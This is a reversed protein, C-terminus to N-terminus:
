KAGVPALAHQVADISAEIVLWGSSTLDARDEDSLNVDAAIRQDIWAVPVPIGDETEFGVQPVPIGPTDALSRVFEQELASYALTIAATWESTFDTAGLPPSTAPVAKVGVEVQTLARITTPATRLGTLNALRLWARWGGNDEKALASGRNDLIIGMEVGSNMGLSPDRIRCVVSLFGDRHLWAPNGSTAAPEQAPTTLDIAARQAASTHEDFIVATSSSALLWPLADALRAWEDPQPHHVWEILQSVPDLSILNLVAPRLSFQTMVRASTGADIWSPVTSTGATPELDEWTIAMVHYGADRLGERKTADDALRNHNASAHFTWGDTFIAIRPVNIDQTTLVFDPKCNPLQEQPVLTWTQHTTPMTFRVRNGTPGPIEKVTAGAATLREIFKVRFLQELLSEDSPVSTDVKSVAWDDFLPVVDIPAEATTGSSLLQFLYREATARSVSDIQWPTAFPLLCKHCALRPEDRCPCTRVKQWASHIIEWVRQPDAFEALYGTGGPVVDHILLADHNVGDSEATPDVVQAIQIHDPAGGLQERLGLLLAATLSPGAFKDGLTMAAPLRILAGQTTLTHSLAIERPNEKDSKRYRCWARHEEPRNSKAATDLKGCHGCVRFLPATREEGAVMRTAGFGGSRGMNLWKIDVRHLYKVGFDYGDLFWQDTVFAPNVDAAVVINFNERKREERSDNISSEDRRVEASVRKIEVVDIHQKMDAIAKSNCRPCVEVAVIEGTTQTDQGFGCEPCFVWPRVASANAGLDVADILVELGQAYFTAGPALESLAVSAGRKYAIADSEYGGTDPDFWSLSVDLSVSDDLLTYNPLIGYEELVSIWHVGRLDFLQGGTLKLTARASREARKEDDTAAPSEAKLKLEPLAAQIATRRFELEEVTKAWRHSADFLHAALGSTGHDDGPMVWSTLASVATMALDDFTGLFRDLHSQADAESFAILDGLFTDRAASGIAAQAKRPHRRTDDRAFVDMLHAVFQRQLIEEANLYTAPPRVEGNIVSLPDGLKPLHEGRGRVFVLSLSNGTLRGARGVRQLYSAVSRPLSSLIVTSLDGIDIGMELTPTAVLVNPAQPNDASNKFQSEYRLRTEDDLLGTHERAVVRRMRSSSYLNRYYNDDRSHRALTGPCRVFLCPAGELETIVTISGPNQAHCIDCELFHRGATLDRLQVASVVVAQPSLSYVQAGSDANVVNLLSADVLRQMLAKAFRAGEHPTVNLCKGAWRSYWSQASTVPDLNGAYKAGGVTGGIRAFAPAKRGKPFAPMGQSRPRGGWVSYRDGDRQIYKDLWPHQIGGSERLHELVGRVWAALQADTPKSHGLEAQVEVTDLLSRAVTVLKQTSGVEVEAVVSGTMGLTRGVRSSLGFELLADFLLRRGVRTRTSPKSQSLKASQWFDVFEDRDAYDPAILQYRRSKDDGALRITEAVLEDLNLRGSGVADRFISRLSLAHSRSQVFGARHAADQVSDTFVLAKKEVEDLTASGFLNSLTVSLLTAIASGMFRIGDSQQCSPCDDNSSEDGADPGTHTLVPIIYGDIFDADDDAPRAQELVRDKTHFWRLGEVEPVKGPVTMALHLAPDAERPAFLLARFREGHQLHNRRISTDDMDLNSGTPALQVGWGSRGCHRCYVAPFYALYPDDVGDDTQFGTPVGDDSWRYQVDATTARDVRSLERVWLHVDVSAAERGVVKRVHSLMAIVNHLFAHRVADRSTETETAGLARSFVRKALDAVSISEATAAILSRLFPHGQSAALLVEDDLDGSGAFLNDPDLYLHQLVTRCIASSEAAPGLDTVASSLDALVREDVDLVEIGYSFLTPGAEASWDELGLRTETVVSSEDFEDGFVTQAFRLMVAPDGKDGLTASTAVPTIRGLPRARDANSIESADDAWHSKLTLGLRRLLMAVDTGQAGDYTHFEDLVVYQLSLASQKWLTADENRLLLQDLMKYNTLLIDPATDRIIGRDNILGAASVKTRKTDQQGTYIAATVAGLDAHTALLETLRKAQDNALANMPYLILAKMGTVGAKKARLVHDLIPNLFAETKGSGTGTTVLTPLPRPKEDTLNASSLRAFAEAQHGYPPFGEYWDLTDRWGEIAPKFPLRLRVYPGKFIGNVPHALFDDLALQADNDALAFATTLYKTLGEQLDGAQLTPLLESM